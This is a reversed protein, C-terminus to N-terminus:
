LSSHAECSLAATTRKPFWTQVGALCDTSKLQEFPEQHMEDLREAIRARGRQRVGVVVAGGVSRRSQRVARRQQELLDSVARTVVIAVPAMMQFLFQDM